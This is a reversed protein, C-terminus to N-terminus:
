SAVVKGGAIVNVIKGCGDCAEFAHPASDLHVAEGCGPCYPYGLANIRAVVKPHKSNPM